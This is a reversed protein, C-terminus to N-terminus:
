ELIKAKAQREAFKADKEKLCTTMSPSMHMGLKKYAKSWFTAHGMNQVGLAVSVQNRLSMTRSFTKTKPAYKTVALNMGKNLQM